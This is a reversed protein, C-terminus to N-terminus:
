CPASNMISRVRFHMLGASLIKIKAKLLLIWKTSRDYTGAIPLSNVTLTELLVFEKIEKRILDPPYKELALALAHIMQSVGLSNKLPVVEPTFVIATTWAKPYNEEKIETAVSVGYKAQLQEFDREFRTCYYLGDTLHFGNEILVAEVGVISALVLLIAALGLRRKLQRSSAM